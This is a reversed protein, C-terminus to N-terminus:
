SILYNRKKLKSAIEQKLTSDAGPYFTDTEVNLHDCFVSGDAYGQIGLERLKYWFFYDEGLKHFTQEKNEKGQAIWNTAFWPRKMQRFVETKILVCALGASYIPFVEGIPFNFYPGCEVEKFIVPESPVRKTWVIGTIAEKDAQMLQTLAGPAVFTDDDIFFIYKANAELAYEVIKTRAKEVPLGRPACVRYSIGTPLKMQFNMMHTLFRSDVTGRSPIGLVVGLNYMKDIEVIETM